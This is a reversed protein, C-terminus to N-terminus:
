GKFERKVDYCPCMKTWEGPQIIGDGNLDPSLDRHGV